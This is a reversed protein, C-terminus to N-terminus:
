TMFRSSNGLIMVQTKDRIAQFYDYDLWSSISEMEKNLTYQLLFSSNDVTYQATDDAYLRFTLVTVPKTIDNMFTNFLLPSLLSGQPVGCGLLLLNSSSDNCIVRQKRDHLYSRILQLAPEQVGYAKLKALLLSHCICDFAKSLDIAAVGVDKKLDLARRGDDTLKILATAWLIHRSFARYYILFNVYLFHVTSWVNSKRFDQLNNNKDTTEGKKHIPTVNSMKWESPLASIRICHNFLNALPSAIAPASLKIIKPCFGDPGTSKKANIKLLYDTVTETTIEM